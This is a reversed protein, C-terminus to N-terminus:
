EFREEEWRGSLEKWTIKGSLYEDFDRIDIGLQAITRGNPNDITMSVFRLPLKGTKKVRDDILTLVTEVQEKLKNTFVYGSKLTVYVVEGGANFDFATLSIEYVNLNRKVYNEVDIKERELPNKRVDRSDESSLAGAIRSVFNKKKPVNLGGTESVPRKSSNTSEPPEKGPEKKVPEAPKAAQKEPKM